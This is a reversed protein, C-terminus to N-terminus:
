ALKENMANRSAMTLQIAFRQSKSANDAELITGSQWEYVPEQVRGGHPRVFDILRPSSERLRIEGDALSSVIFHNKPDGPEVTLEFYHIDVRRQQLLGFSQLIRHISVDHEVDLPELDQNVRTKRLCCEFFNTAGMRIQLPSVIKHFVVPGHLSDSLYQGCSDATIKWGFWQAESPNIPNRLEMNWFSFRSAELWLLDRHTIGSPLAFEWSRSYWYGVLNPLERTPNNPDPVCVGMCNSDQRNFLAAGYDPMEKTIDTLGNISVSLSGDARNLAFVNGPYLVTLRNIPRYGLNRILVFYVIQMSSASLFRVVANGFPIQIPQDIAYVEFLGGGKARNVSHSSSRACSNSPTSRSALFEDPPKAGVASTPPPTQRSVDVQNWDALTANADLLLLGAKGEGRMADLAKAITLLTDKEIRLGKKIRQLNKYHDWGCEKILRGEDWVKQNLIREILSWNAVVTSPKPM